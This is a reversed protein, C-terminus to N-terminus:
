KIRVFHCRFIVVEGTGAGQTQVEEEGPEEQQEAAASEQVEAVARTGAAPAGARHRAAPGQQPHVRRVPQRTVDPGHRGQHDASAAQQVHARSRGLDDRALVLLGDHLLQLPRARPVRHVAQAPIGGPLLGPLRPVPRLGRRGRRYALIKQPTKYTRKIKKKSFKYWNKVVM